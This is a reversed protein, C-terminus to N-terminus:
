KASKLRVLLEVASKYNTSGVGGFKQAIDRAAEAYSIAKARASDRAPLDKAASAVAQWALAADRRTDYKSNASMNTSSNELALIGELIEIAAMPNGDAAEIFALARRAGLMASDTETNVRKRMKIAREAYSRAQPYQKINVYIRSIREYRTATFRNFEGRTEAFLKAARELLAIAEEHRGQEEALDAQGGLNGALLNGSLQLKLIAAEILKFQQGAENFRKTARLFEAYFGRTLLMRQSDYGLTITGNDIAQLFIREADSNKNLKALTNALSTHANLLAGEVRPMQKLRRDVLAMFSVEAAAFDGRNFQNFAANFRFSIYTENTWPDSDFARYFIELEGAATKAEEHRATANFNALLANLARAYVRPQEVKVKKAVAVAQEALATSKSTDESSMDIAASILAGAREANFKEGYTAYADAARQNYASSAKVDGFSSHISGLSQFLRAQAIPEVAKLEGLRKEARAIM